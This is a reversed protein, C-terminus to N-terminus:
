HNEIEEKAEEPWRKLRWNAQIEARIYREIDLDVASSNLSIEKTPILDLVEKIDTEKRNTVLLHISCNQWSSMGRILELIQGRQRCEDLADLIIYVNQFIRLLDQLVGRLGETSATLGKGYSDYLDGLAKPIGDLRGFLQDILSAMLTGYEQKHSDNFDFYFYAIAPGPAPRCFGKVAEIITSSYWRHTNPSANSPM